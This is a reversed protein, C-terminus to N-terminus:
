GSKLGAREGDEGRESLAEAQGYTMILVEAIEANNMAVVLRGIPYTKEGSRSARQSDTSAFSGPLDHFVDSTDGGRVLLYISSNMTGIFRFGESKSFIACSKPILNGGVTVNFVRPVHDAFHFLSLTFAYADMDYDLDDAFLVKAVTKEQNERHTKSLLKAIAAGDDRNLARLFAVEQSGDSPGWSSSAM